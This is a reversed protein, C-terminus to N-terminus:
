VIGLTAFSIVYAVYGPWEHLLDHALRDSGEPKPLDLVLLTIAIAFIGDVLATLRGPGM